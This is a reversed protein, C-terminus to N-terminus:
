GAFRQNYEHFFSDIDANTIGYYSLKYDPKGGAHQPHKAEWARMAQERQPTLERGAHQYIRRVVKMSDDKVQEYQVDLINLRSGMSDRLKMHQRMETGWDALCALGVAHKNVHDLHLRWPKELLSCMSPIVDHLNRHTFVLTAKPFHNLLLDMEGMHVPSKMIWPRGQKGGDQWQLYQIMQKMYGYSDNMSQTRLWAQYNPVPRSMFNMVCKFSFIQLYVEEDAEHVDQSHSKMWDPMLQKIMEISQQAMAIRPDPQVADSAPMRAPNLVRWYELRQVDPDASMLRQLKTTGTRPMGLIVIPDSVDEDLIEPHRKLDEAFRLRNVLIRHIDAKVAMVGLESLGHHADVFRTMAERFTEDGFDHLGTEASAAALMSDVSLMEGAQKAEEAM